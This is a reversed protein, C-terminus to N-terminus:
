SLKNGLHEPRLSNIPSRRVRYLVRKARVLSDAASELDGEASVNLGDNLSVVMARSGVVANSGLMEDCSDNVSSNTLDNNQAIKYLNITKERSRLARPREVNDNDKSIDDFILSKSNLRLVKDKGLVALASAKDQKKGKMKREAKKKARYNAIAEFISMLLQFILTFVVLSTVTWGLGQRINYPKTGSQGQLIYIVSVLITNLLLSIETGAVSWKKYPSIFLGPYFTFGVNLIQFLNLVVLLIGPSIQLTELLFVLFFNCFLLNFFAYFRAFMSPHFDIYLLSILRDALKLIKSNQMKEPEFVIGLIAAVWFLILIVSYVIGIIFSTVQYANDFTTHGVNLIVGISLQLYRTILITTILNKEFMEVVALAMKKFRGEKQKICGLILKFILYICLSVLTSFFIGGYTDLFVYGYRYHSYQNYLVTYNDNNIALVRRSANGPNKFHNSIFGPMAFQGVDIFGYFLPLPNPYNINVLKLFNIRSTFLLLRMINTSYGKQQLYVMGAAISSAAVASKASGSLAEKAAAMWESREVAIDSFNRVIIYRESKGLNWHTYSIRLTTIEANDTYSEWFVEYTRNIETTSSISFKESASVSDLVILGLNSTSFAHSITHLTENFTFQYVNPFEKLSFTVEVPTKSKCILDLEDLYFGYECSICSYHPTGSACSSFSPAQVCVDTDLNCIPLPIGTNSDTIRWCDSDSVCQVCVNLTTNCRKNITQAQCHTDHTCQVCEFEVLNCVPQTPKYTCYSDSVCPVCTGNSHCSNLSLHTCDSDSACKSCIHTEAPCSALAPSECDSTIMCNGCFGNSLCALIAPCENDTSCGRCIYSTSDCIPTVGDCDANNRCKVCLYEDVIETSICFNNSPQCDQDEICTVCVGNSCFPLDTLSSCDENQQCPICVNNECLSNYPNECDANTGCEVCQNLDATSVCVPLTGSCGLNSGTVCSHCVGGECYQTDSFRNCSVHSTCAECTHSALACEAKSSDPCDGNTGCEHCSNVGSISVCIPAPTTCGTNTIKKCAQCTGGDCYGRAPAFNICDNDISCTTCSYSLCRPLAPNTCDSSTRCNVCFNDAAEMCLPTSGSCGLHSSSSCFQCKGADCVPTASLKSCESNSQCPVCTGAQCLAKTRTPCDNNSTCSDSSSTLCLPVVTRFTCIGYSCIGMNPCDDDDDCHKWCRKGDDQCNDSPCYTINYCDIGLPYQCLGKVCKHNPFGITNCDDDDCCERCYGSCYTAAPLGLCDANTNCTTTCRTDLM